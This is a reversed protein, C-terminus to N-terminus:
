RCPDFEVCRVCGYRYTIGATTIQQRVVPFAGVAGCGRCPKPGELVLVFGSRDPLPSLVTAGPPMM